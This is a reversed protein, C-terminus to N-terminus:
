AILPEDGKLFVLRVDARNGILIERYRRKLASCAVIGHKGAGRTKDIWAAIARLWPVRDEDTLPTGKHMKEVNAPPHFWDGDEFEWHLRRALLAGVTSKGSGSVGMVVLIRPVVASGARSNASTLDMRTRRM